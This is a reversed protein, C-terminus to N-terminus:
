KNKKNQKDRVTHFVEEMTKKIRGSEAFFEYLSYAKFQARMVEKEIQYEVGNRAAQAKPDEIVGTVYMLEQMLEQDSNYQGMQGLLIVLSTHFITYVLEPNKRAFVLIDKECGDRELIRILSQPSDVFLNLYNMIVRNKKIKNNYLDQQQKLDPDKLIFDYTEGSSMRTMSVLIVTICLVKWIMKIRSNKM